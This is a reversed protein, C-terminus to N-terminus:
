LKKWSMRNISEMDQNLIVKALYADAQNENAMNVLHDRLEGKMEQPQNPHITPAMSVFLKKDNHIAIIDIPSPVHDDSRIQGWGM